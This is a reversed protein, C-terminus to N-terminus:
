DANKGFSCTGARGQAGPHLAPAADAPAVGTRVLDVTMCKLHHALESEMDSEFRRRLIVARWWTRLQAVIRFGTARVGM